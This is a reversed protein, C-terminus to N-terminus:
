RISKGGVLKQVVGSRYTGRYGGGFRYECKFGEITWRVGGGAWKVEIPGSGEM